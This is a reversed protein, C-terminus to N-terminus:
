RKSLRGWVQASSMLEQIKDSLYKLKQMAELTQLISQGTVFDESPSPSVPSPYASLFSPFPHLILAPSKSPAISKETIASSHHSIASANTPSHSLPSPYPQLVSPPISVTLAGRAAEPRSSQGSSASPGQVEGHYGSGSAGKNNRLTAPSPLTHSRQTKVGLPYVDRPSVKQHTFSSPPVEGITQNRRPSPLRNLPLAVSSPSSYSRTHQTVPNPRQNTEEQAHSPRVDPHAAADALWPTDEASPRSVPGPTPSSHGWYRALVNHRITNGIELHKVNGYWGDKAAAIHQQILSCFFGAIIRLM